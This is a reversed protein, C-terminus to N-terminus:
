GPAMRYGPYTFDVVVTFYVPVPEGDRTAPTYRWQRVAEIAAQEFGCDAGAPRVVKIDGVTGDTGIVATLVVRGLVKKGIAAQPFRPIVKSGPIPKPNTIGDMEGRTLDFPPGSRDPARYAGRDATEPAPLEPLEWLALIRRFAQLDAFHMTHRVNRRYGTLSIEATGAQALARVLPEQDPLFMIQTARCGRPPTEIDHDPTISVVLPNGDVTARFADPRGKPPDKVIVRVGLSRRGEPTVAILPYMRFDFRKWDEPEPAYWTLRRAGDTGVEIGQLPDGPAAAIAPGGVRPWVAVAALAALRLLPRRAHRPRTPSTM